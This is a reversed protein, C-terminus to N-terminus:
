GKWRAHSSSPPGQFGPRWIILCSHLAGGSGGAPEGTRPDIFQVRPYLTIIERAYPQVHHRWWATERREYVLAVVTMLNGFRACKAMWRAVDSYPPNCWAICQPDPWGRAGSAFPLEVLVKCWDARLGDRERPDLADPGCYTSGFRNDALAAVDISPYGVLERVIQRIGEPTQYCDRWEEGSARAGGMADAIAERATRGPTPHELSFDTM